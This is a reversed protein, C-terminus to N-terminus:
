TKSKTPPAARSTWEPAVLVHCTACSMNGGCAGIIGTVNNDLGAQM